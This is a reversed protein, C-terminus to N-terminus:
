PAGNDWAWTARDDWRGRWVSEGVARRVRPARERVRLDEDLDDVDGFYGIAVATVVAYGDPVGCATRAAAADFGAMQHVFLGDATAQVSLHAVAQGLDYWAHANDRPPRDPREITLKTCAFVLVPARFAWRRNGENLCALLRAHAEPEGDVTAVVFRWPQNNGSSPAWRAAEFLTRLAARPVPRPSFARPSWRARPPPHLPAATDAPKALPM